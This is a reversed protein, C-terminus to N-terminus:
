RLRLLNDMAYDAVLTCSGMSAQSEFEFHIGGWIRSKAEEDALQRFGNYSRVVPAANPINWTVQVPVNDQGFLRALVQAQSAALCARNGPYGPYPPTNLLPTWAPDAETAPNGDRDAERIATVPRWLGYLFKGTFSTLLADHQTMNLLAFARALELGSWNRQRAVNALVLNWLNPSTTTTGVGHWLRAMQTQDATRTTSNVAGLSKTENFDQAYRESDLAPPAAMLFRRGSGIVFGTVDPYHTFAAAQNAPPTPRWYGPLSPLLYEPPQRSWGDDARLELTARAVDAGVRAGERAAEAPVGALAAALEADFSAKLSPLLAVLTDHAAQAVAVDRSAGPAPDVLTAYPQYIRDFSNAADFVAVSVIAMPRHVFVTPPNAGPAVVADLLIGNWKLVVAATQAHAATAILVVLGIATM